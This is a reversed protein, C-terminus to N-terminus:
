VGEEEIKLQLFRRESIPKFRIYKGPELLFPNESNQNFIKLPTKGIIQWGGPSDVPYIGTQNNAIGISGAEIKIRPRELRPTHIRKDLGGLYPFGATFGLMYILYKTSSHIKIVDKISLNNYQAVNGIDPGYEGGYVVPIVIVKNTKNETIKLNTEISKLKNLLEMYTIKVPNYQIMISRYTPIVELLEDNFSNNIEKELSIIVRNIKENISDGVEIIIAKDGATLYKFQNYMYGCGNM